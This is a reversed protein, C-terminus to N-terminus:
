VVLHYTFDIFAQGKILSPTKRYARHVRLLGWRVALLEMSSPSGEFSKLRCGTQLQDERQNKFHRWCPISHPVRLRALCESGPESRIQGWLTDCTHEGEIVMAILQFDTSQWDCAQGSNGKRSFDHVKGLLRTLWLLLFVPFLHSLLYSLRSVRWWDTTLHLQSRILLVNYVFFSPRMLSSDVQDSKCLAFCSTLPAHPRWWLVWGSAEGKTLKARAQSM